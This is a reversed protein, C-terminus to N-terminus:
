QTPGSSAPAPSDTLLRAEARAPDIRQRQPGFVLWGAGIVVVLKVIVAILAPRAIPHSWM